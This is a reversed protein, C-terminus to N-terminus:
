RQEIEPQDADINLLRFEGGYADFEFSNTSTWRILKFPISNTYEAEPFHKDLYARDLYIRRYDVIELCCGGDGFQVKEIFLQYENNEIFTVVRYTHGKIPQNDADEYWEYPATSLFDPFPYSPRIEKQVETTVSSSVYTGALFLLPLLATKITKMVKEGEHLKTM